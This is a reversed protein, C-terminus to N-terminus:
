HPLRLEKSIRFNHFVAGYVDYFTFNAEDGRFEMFGQGDFNFKMVESNWSRVDGRWSKSGGGSTLFQIHGDIGSIHELCHDHGNIYFDVKNAQFFFTLNSDSTLFKRCSYAGLTHFGNLFKLNSGSRENLPMLLTFHESRYLRYEQPRSSQCYLILLSKPREVCSAWCKQNHSSRCSNELKREFDLIGKWDYSPDRPNVFYEDIFPTTDVFIVDVLKEVTAVNLMFNRFCLWRKDKETLVPSFQAEVNGRYDHNGLVVCLFVNLILIYIYIYIYIYACVCVCFSLFYFLYVFMNHCYSQYLFILKCVESKNYSGKRGWDGVLLFSLSGDAKPPHNLRPLEAASLHFGLLKEKSPLKVFFGFFNQLKKAESSLMQRNNPISYNQAISYM